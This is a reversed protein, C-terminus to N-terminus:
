TKDTKVTFDGFIRRIAGDQLKLILAGQSDVDLALGKVEENESAVQIERGLFAAFKKWEGVVHASGKALYTDYVTEMRELLKRLLEELGVKRGLEVQLSTAMETLERPLVQEPIFNANLGIGVVVFNVRDDALSSETLIGCVKKRNLLVDNPWKTKVKLGYMQELVKAVALGGMLTLGAADSADLKPRLIISFWLGGLPSFWRNGSRGRGATQTEALVITGEAAGFGAVERGFDNTSAIKQFFLIERGFRKAGLGQQVKDLNLKM